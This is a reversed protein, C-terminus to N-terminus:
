LTFLYYEIQDPECGIIASQNHVMKLFTIYAEPKSKISINIMELCEDNLLALKTIGNAVRNDFIVPYDTRGISKGLFYFHKTFFSPGCRDLEKNLLKYSNKIQDEDDINVQRIAQQSDSPINFMKSLKWPGRSDRRGGAAAEHGWIMTAIFKTEIEIKSNRYFDVLETRNFSESLEHKIEEIKPLLYANSNFEEEWYEFRCLTNHSDIDLNRILEYDSKPIM